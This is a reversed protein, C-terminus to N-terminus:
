IWRFLRGQTDSAYVTTVDNAEFGILGTIVNNVGTGGLACNTTTTGNHVALTGAPGGLIVRGQSDVWSVKWDIDGCNNPHIAFSGDTPAPTAPDGFSFSEFKASASRRIALKGDEGAVWVPYGSSHVAVTNWQQNASSLHHSAVQKLTGGCSAPEDSVGASCNNDIGDCLEAQISSRASDRDDCDGDQGLAYGSVPPQGEQCVIKPNVDPIVTAIGDGDGDLDQYYIDPEPANCAVSTESACQITGCGQACSSGKTPFNEDIAVSGVSACNNDIGDCLEPKNPARRADADDCDFPPGSPYKIYKPGPSTCRVTHAPGEPVGDEDNDLYWKKDDNEDTDGNCNNDKEDCIDAKGPAIEADDDKCDGGVTAYGRVGDAPVCHQIAEGGIGDGDGDRFMPVKPLGEDVGGTCNNDKDDCIEQQSPNKMGDADDCDTGGNADSLYGDHDPDPTTFTLNRTDGLGEGPFELEVTVADRIQKGKLLGETDKDCSFEHATVTALVKKNWGEKQFVGVNVFAGEGAEDRARNPSVTQDDLVDQTASDKVVIRFCGKYFGSTYNVKLQVRPQEKEKSCALLLLPFLFLAIRRM